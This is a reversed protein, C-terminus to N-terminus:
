IGCAENVQAMLKKMEDSHVGANALEELNMSSTICHTSMKDEDPNSEAIALKARAREPAVRCHEVYSADEALKGGGTNSAYDIELSGCEMVIDLFDDSTKAKAVLGDIKDYSVNSAAESPKGSATGDGKKDGCGFALTATLVLTFTITKRM